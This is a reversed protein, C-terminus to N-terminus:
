MVFITSLNKIFSFPESSLLNGALKQSQNRHFYNALQWSSHCIESLIINFCYHLMCLYVIKALPNGAFKGQACKKVM